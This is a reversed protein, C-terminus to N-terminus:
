SKEAERSLFFFVLLIQDKDLVLLENNSVLDIRAVNSLDEKFFTWFNRKQFCAVNLGRRINKDLSECNIKDETCRFKLHELIKGTSFAHLELVRWFAISLVFIAVEVQSHQSM